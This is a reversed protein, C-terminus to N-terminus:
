QWVKSGSLTVKKGGLEASIECTFRDGKPLAKMTCVLMEGPPPEPSPALEAPGFMKMAISAEDAQPEWIQPNYRKNMLDPTGDDDLHPFGIIHGWEHAGVHALGITNREPVGFVEVFQEMDLRMRQQKQGTYLEADALIGLPGDITTVKVLVNASAKTVAQKPRHKCVKSWASFASQLVSETKGDSWGAIRGELWWTWDPSPIPYLKGDLRFEEKVGCYHIEEAFDGTARAIQPVSRRPKSSKKAV